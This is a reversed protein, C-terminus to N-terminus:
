LLGNVKNLIRFRVAYHKELLSKLELSDIEVVIVEISFKSKLSPSKVEL